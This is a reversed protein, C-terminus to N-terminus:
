RMMLPYVRPMLFHNIYDTTHSVFTTANDSDAFVFEEDKNVLGHTKGDIFAAKMVATASGDANFWDPSKEITVKQFAPDLIIQHPLMYFWTIPVNYKDAFYSFIIQTIIGKSIPTRMFFDSCWFAHIHATEKANQVINDYANKIPKICGYIDAPITLDEQQMKLHFKQIEEMFSM